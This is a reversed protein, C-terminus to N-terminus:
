RDDGVEGLYEEGLIAVVAEDADIIRLLDLEGRRRRQVAGHQGAHHPASPRRGRTSVTGPGPSPQVEAVEGGRLDHGM